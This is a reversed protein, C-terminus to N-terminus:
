KILHKFQETNKTIYDPYSDDIEIFEWKDHIDNSWLSQGNTIKYDLVAANNLLPTNVETHSFSDLKEQIRDVGGLYSFHWGANAITVDYGSNRVEEPTREQLYRYKMARPRDWSQVGQRCNLWYGFMDMRLSAFEHGLSIFAEVAEKRVIEDCDSILITDEESAGLEKLGKMIANRQHRENDWPNGNNPMDQVVVYHYNFDMLKSLMEPFKLDKRNGTFTYTSEVIVHTVDLGKLENCRTLLCEWEGNYLFCDYIM